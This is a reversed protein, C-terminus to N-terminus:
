PRNFFDRIGEVVADAQPDTLEPYVPLALTERAAQEAAPFDGAAYGLDRFCEQLHLPVPYYIETSVGREQLFGRLADRQPVRIVYQNVVHRITADPPPIAPLKVPDPSLGKATFLRAYRDANDIRASTWAELHPLKVALVAAQLADLRFNGGILAHYYKPDMGHNRLKHVRDARAPDGTLVMGGDGAGGLNKSPFFSLGGYHGIAGASRGGRRAGIAQAADEIVVLGHADALSMITEMAAMQGYLHVPIIARTRASLRERILSADLNFTSSEIDVFVPRAGLRTIAGATAFFSYPSTIVEDGPGIGEAMLAVLLADSGSSVGVAHACGCVAAVAREFNEVTAGLIFSQAEFVAAVAAETERRIGNYQAKLDLLPVQIVNKSKTCM